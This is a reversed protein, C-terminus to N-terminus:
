MKSFYEFVDQQSINTDSKKRKDSLKWFDKPKSHRLREIQRIKHIKFKFSRKKRRVLRKYSCKLDYKNIRDIRM